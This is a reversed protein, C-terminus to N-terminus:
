NTSLQWGDVVGKFAPIASTIMGSSPEVVLQLPRVLLTNIAPNASVVQKSTRARKLSPPKNNLPQKGSPTTKDADEAPRKASPQPPTSAAAAAPPAKKPRKPSPAAVIKTAVYTDFTHVVGGSTFAATEDDSVHKLPDPDDSAAAVNIAVTAKNECGLFKTIKPGAMGSAELIRRMRGLSMPNTDLAHYTDPAADTSVVAVRSGQQDSLITYWKASAPVDAPSTPVTKVNAGKSVVEWKAQSRYNRGNSLRVVTLKKSAVSAKSKKKKEAQVSKAHLTDFGHALGTALNFDSPLPPPKGLAKANTPPFSAHALETARTGTPPRGLIRSIRRKQLAVTTLVAYKKDEFRVASFLSGDSHKLLAYEAAKKPYTYDDAARSGVPVVDGMHVPEGYADEIPKGTAADFYQPASHGASMVEDGSEGSSDNANDEEWEGDSESEVDELCEMEDKTM